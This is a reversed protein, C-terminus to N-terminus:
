KALDVSPGAVSGFLEPLCIIQLFFQLFPWFWALAQLSAGVAAPWVLLIKEPERGVDFARALAGQKQKLRPAPTRTLPEATGGGDIQRGRMASRRNISRRPREMGPDRCFETAKSIDQPWGVELRAQPFRTSERAQRPTRYQGRRIASTRRCSSPRGSTAMCRAVVRAPRLRRSRGSRPSCLAPRTYFSLPPMTVCDNSGVLAHEPQRRAESHGDGMGWIAILPGTPVGMLAARHLRIARTRRKDAEAQPWHCSPTAAGRKV